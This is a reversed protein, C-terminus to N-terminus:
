KIRLKDGVRLRKAKQENMDNLRLLEDVQMKNKRAITWPNDGSKVVYYEATEKKPEAKPTPRVVVKAEPITLVQGISLSSSTLQNEKMLASISVKHNKAIKDLTDGKTVKVEKLVKSKKLAEQYKQATKDVKKENVPKSVVPEKAKKKASVQKQKPQPQPKTKVVQPQAAKAIHVTKEPKVASFFLGVLLATNILVAIIITDRRNM